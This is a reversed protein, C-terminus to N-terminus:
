NALSGVFASLEAMVDRAMQVGRQEHITLTM